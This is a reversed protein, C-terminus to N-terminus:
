QASFCHNRTEAEKVECYKPMSIDSEGLLDFYMSLNLLLLSNHERFLDDIFVVLEKEIRYKIKLPSQFPDLYYNSQLQDAVVIEVDKGSIFIPSLHNRRVPQVM